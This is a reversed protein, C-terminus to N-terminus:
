LAEAVRDNKGMFVEYRGQMRLIFYEEKHLPHTDFNIFQEVQEKQTEYCLLAKGKTVVVDTIDIATTIFKDKVGCVPKEYAQIPMMKEKQLYTMVHDPICGYYLKPEKADPNVDAFARLYEEEKWERGRGTKGFEPHKLQELHKAYKQFAFTTAVSVKACDPDNILGSPDHTIIIDPLITEMSKVIPDELTGPSLSALEGDKNHLFDIRRIGVIKAAATMEKQRLAGLVSGTAWEFDGNPGNQGDSAVICNISWGLSAYKAITGGFVLSEEWPHAIVLLLTKM